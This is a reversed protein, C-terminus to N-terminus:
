SFDFQYYRDHQSGSNYSINWGEAKYIDIIKTKVKLMVDIPLGEFYKGVDVFARSGEVFNVLKANIVGVITDVLKDVQASSQSIAVAKSIPKNQM